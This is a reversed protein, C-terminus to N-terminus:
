DPHHGHRTKNVDFNNYGRSSERYTFYEPIEYTYQSWRAPYSYQFNWGRFNSLFDSVISYEFEIISGEKVDPFAFNVNVYNDTNAKYIKDNDVKTKVVKGDVMNYTFAKLGRLEEKNLGSQYLKISVDAVSFASKRFIKIQCHKKYLFQFEPAILSLLHM